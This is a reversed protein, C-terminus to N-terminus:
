HLHHTFNMEENV